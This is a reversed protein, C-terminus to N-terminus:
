GFTEAGLDQGTSQRDSPAAAVRAGGGRTDELVDDVRCFSYTAVCCALCLLLEQFRWNGLIGHDAIQFHYALCAAVDKPIMVFKGNGM